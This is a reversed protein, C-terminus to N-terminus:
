KGRSGVQSAVRILLAIRAMCTLVYYHPKALLFSQSYRHSNCLDGRGPDGNRRFVVAAGFVHNVVEDLGLNRLAMADRKKSWTIGFGRRFQDREKGVRKERCSFGPLRVELNVIMIM